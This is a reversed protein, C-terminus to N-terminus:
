GKVAGIMIGKVFHKQVFPYVCLIPITVVISITMRISSATLQTATNVVQTHDGGSRMAKAISNVENLFQYLIFQLTYESSKNMLFLTDTFSNWQNVSAFVVITALIPKALPMVIKFYRVLYGAGDIQASEELSEPLSEIYTKFLILFFTNVFAPIIYAWFNNIFGLNKMNIYWPIIGANFYMTIIVFRYWYKRMWFEKKTFVYGLFSSGILTAATGIVTRALSLMAARGLGNLQLVKYYNNFHIGKPLFLIKGSAVLSNDSISNIFLYYFPFICILTFLFYVTYITLYYLTNSISQNKKM